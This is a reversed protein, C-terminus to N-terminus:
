RATVLLRRFSYWVMHRSYRILVALDVERDVALNMEDRRWQRGYEGCRSPSSVPAPSRM